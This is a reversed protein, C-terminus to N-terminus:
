AAVDGAFSRIARQTSTVVKDVDLVGFGEDSLAKVYNDGGTSPVPARLSSETVRCVACTDTAFAVEVSATQVIVAQGWDTRAAAIGLVRSLDIAAIIKGRVNLLGLVFDPTGSLPAVGELSVVERVLDAEIGFRAGGFELTVMEAVAAAEEAALPQSLLLARRRLIEATQEATRGARWARPIEVAAEDLKEAVPRTEDNADIESM